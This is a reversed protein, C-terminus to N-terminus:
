RFIQSFTILNLTRTAQRKYAPIHPKNKVFAILDGGM